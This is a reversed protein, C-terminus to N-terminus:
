SDNREMDDHYFVNDRRKPGAAFFLRFLPKMDKQRFMFINKGRNSWIGEHWGFSNTSNQSYQEQENKPSGNLILVKM